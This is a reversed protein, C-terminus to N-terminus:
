PAPREGTALVYNRYEVEHTVERVVEQALWDPLIVLLEADPLEVEALVLERDDFVDVEWVLEPAHGADIVRYRTKVIRRGWTSPWARDFTDADIEREVEQRELGTGRKITHTRQV